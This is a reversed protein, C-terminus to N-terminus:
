SKKSSDNGPRRRRNVAMSLGIRLDNILRKWNGSVVWGVVIGIGRMRETISIPSRMIAHVFERLRRWNPFVIRGAKRTDFWAERDHSRNGNRKRIRISRSPHDRNHFLPEPVEYFPGLLVLELIITRDSGTYSGHLRTRDLASRRMLGFVAADSAGGHRYPYIATRIRISVDDSCLGPRPEGDGIHTGEADISDFMTSAVVTDPNTDLASVCRELFVPEILDDHASWKFYEGRSRHFVDNYNPAAGLNQSQRHYHIRPDKAAYARCIEETSDTSANDSIVIEFDTFTQALIADLTEALYNEGNYVPVGISVLPVHSTMHAAADM